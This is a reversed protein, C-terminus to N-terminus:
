RGRISSSIIVQVLAHVNLGSNTRAKEGLDPNDEFYYASPSSPHLPPSRPISFNVLPHMTLTSRYMHVQNIFAMHM